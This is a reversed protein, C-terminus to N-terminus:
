DNVNIKDKLVTNLVIFDIHRAYVKIRKKRSVKFHLKFFFTKIKKTIEKIM